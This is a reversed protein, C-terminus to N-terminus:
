ESVLEEPGSKSTTNAVVQINASISGDYEFQAEVPTRVYNMEIGEVSVATILCINIVAIKGNQAEPIEYFTIETTAVGEEQSTKWDVDTPIPSSRDTCNGEMMRSTANATVPIFDSRCVVHKEPAGLDFVCKADRVRYDPICDDCSDDVASTATSSGTGPAADQVVFGMTPAPTSVDKSKMNSQMVAYIIAILFVLGTTIGVAILRIRRRDAVVGTDVTGEGAVFPKEIDVDKLPAATLPSTVNNTDITTTPVPTPVTGTTPVPTPVTGTRVNLPNEVDLASSLLDPVQNNM